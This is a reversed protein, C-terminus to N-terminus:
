GEATKRDQGNQKRWKIIAIARSRIGYRMRAELNHVDRKCIPCLTKGNGRIYLVQVFVRCCECRRFLRGGINWTGNRYQKFPLTM